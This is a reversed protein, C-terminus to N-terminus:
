KPPAASAAAVVHAALATLENRLKTRESAQAAADDTGLLAEVSGFARVLTAMAVADFGPSRQILGLLGTALRSSGFTSQLSVMDKAGMVGLGVGRGPATTSAILPKLRAGLAGGIDAIATATMAKTTGVKDAAKDKEFDALLTTLARSPIAPGEGNLGRLFADVVAQPLLALRAADQFPGQRNQFIPDGKADLVRNGKEDLKIAKPFQELIRDYGIAEAMYKEPCKGPYSRIINVMAHVYDARTWAKTGKSSMLRIHDKEERTLDARWVRVKVKVNAFRKPDENLAEALAAGRRNGDLVESGCVEVISMEPDYKGARFAEVLPGIHWEGKSGFRAWQAKGPKYDRVFDSVTMHVINYNADDDSKSKKKPTTANSTDTM